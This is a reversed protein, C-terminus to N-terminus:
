LNILSSLHAFECVGRTGGGGFECVGRTGGGLSVYGVRGGEGGFECVGRMGGGGLSVYGM